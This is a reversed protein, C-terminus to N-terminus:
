LTTRIALHPLYYKVQQNSLPIIHMRKALCGTNTARLGYRSHCAFLPKKFFSFQQLIAKYSHCIIPYTKRLGSSYLVFVKTVFSSPRFFQYNSMVHDYRHLKPFIRSSWFTIRMLLRPLEKGIPHKKCEPTQPWRKPINIRILSCSHQIDLQINAFM